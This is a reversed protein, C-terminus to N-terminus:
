EQGLTEFQALDYRYVGAVWRRYGVKGPTEAVYLYRDDIGLSSPYISQEDHASIRRVKWDSARTVSVAAEDRTEFFVTAAVYDGRTAVRLASAPREVMKPGVHLTLQESGRQRAVFRLDEYFADCRSYHPKARVRGLAGALYRDGIGVACIEGEIDESAPKEGELPSWQLLRSASDGRFEDYLAHGGFHDIGNTGSRTSVRVVTSSDAEPMALVEELCSFVVPWGPAEVSAAGCNKLRGKGQLSPLRFSYGGDDLLARGFLFVTTDLDSSASATLITPDESSANLNCAAFDQGDPGAKIATLTQGSRLDVVRYVAHSAEEPGVSQHLALLIRGEADTGLNPDWASRGTVLTPDYKECGPGCPEWVARPFRELAERTAIRFEYIQPLLSTPEPAVKWLGDDLLYAIPDQEGGTGGGGSGGITAGGSGGHGSGGGSGGVAHITDASPSPSCSPAGGPVLVCALLYPWPSLRM